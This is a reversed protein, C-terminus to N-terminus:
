SPLYDWPSEGFEADAIIGTTCGGVFALTSVLAPAEPGLVASAAAVDGAALTVAAGGTVCTGVYGVLDGVEDWQDWGVFSEYADEGWWRGSRDTRNAPNGSTYLYPNITTPDDLSGTRPDVQTWRALQPAYYRTGFKLLKTTTDYYGSAYRWPNNDSSPAALSTNEAGDNSSTGANPDVWSRIQEGYPEYLYRTVDGTNDNTTAIVSQQQDLLYYRGRGTSTDIMTLLRGAPDRIFLESHAGTGTTNQATLGSYGYSMTTNGAITRRDQMVGDYAQPIGATAGPPTFVTTQGALNYQAAFGGLTASTGGSASELNGDKDHIYNTTGAPNNSSGCGLSVSNASASQSIAACIEDGANYAMQLKGTTLGPTSGTTTDTVLNAHRDYTYNFSRLSGGTETKVLARTLQKIADYTYTHTRGGLETMEYVMSTRKSPADDSIGPNNYNYGRFTILGNASAGPCTDDTGPDNSSTKFSYICTEDGDKDYVTREILDNGTGGNGSDFRTRTRNNQRNYDFRIMPNLKPPTVSGDANPEGRPDDVSVVRNAADYAYRTTEPSSAGAVVQGEVTTATLNGAPDYAYTTRGSFQQASEGVLRNLEDFDFRASPRPPAGGASPVPVPNILETQNGALDYKYGASQQENNDFDVMSESVVHDLGDYRYTTRVNRADTVTAIRSMNDYTYTLDGGNPRDVKVLENLANYTFLTDNGQATTTDTGCRTMNGDTDAPDKKPSTSHSFAGDATVPDIRSIQGTATWCYKYSVRNEELKHGSEARILNNNEDYTYNWNASAGGSDDGQVSTPSHPHATDAYSATNTAGEPSTSGKPADDDTYDMSYQDQGAGTGTLDATEINSNSVYTQSRKNNNADTVRLIRGLLDVCYKTRDNTDSDLREGDVITRFKADNSNIDGQSCAANSTVATNTVDVGADTLYTLRLTSDPQNTSDTLRTLTTMNGVGDYDFTMKQGGASANDGANDRANTISAIKDNAGYTYTTMAGVNGTTDNSGNMTTTGGIADNDIPGLSSSVLQAPVTNSYTYDWRLMPTGTAGNNGDPRRFEIWDVLGNTNYNLKAARKRTDIVYDLDGVSNYTFTLKNGNTDRTELLRGDYDFKYVSENFWKLEYYDDLLTGTDNDFSTLDANIGPSPRAYRNREKAPGTTAQPNNFETRDGTTGFFDVRPAEGYRNEGNSIGQPFELRVSGGFATSWGTGMRAGGWSENASNYSRTLAMDWGNVGALKADQATILLNGNGINVKASIKDTLDRTEYNFFSRDGAQKTSLEGEDYTVKLTPRKGVNLPDTSSSYFSVQRSASEDIARLLFGNNPFHGQMWGKVIATVNPNETTGINPNYSFTSGPSTLPDGGTWAGSAGSSSWSANTNFLKGARYFGIEASGSGSFQAPDQTLQLESATIEGTPPIMSLDFDIVARHRAGDARGVRVFRSNDGCRSVTPSGAQLWCDRVSRGTVVSPDVTVPYVRAPDNLWAADPTVSLTWVGAGQDANPQLDFDVQDTYAPEPAASDVMNGVPISFLVGDGSPGAQPRQPDTFDITGSDTLDAVVGPSTRVTYTYVAEDEPAANLVIAEKLGTSTTSLSVEAVEPRGEVQVFTATSGDVAPAGTLGDMKMSVWAGEASFRVPTTAANEPIQATYAAADNQAAYSAGPDDVLTTDIPKWTDSAPDLYNVPVTDIVAELSGDPQLSTTSTETSLEPVVVPELEAQQPATAIAASAVGAAKAPATAAPAANATAPWAAM